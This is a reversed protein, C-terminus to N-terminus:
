LHILIAPTGASFIGDEDDCGDEVDEDMRLKKIL